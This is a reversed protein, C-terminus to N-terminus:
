AAGKRRTMGYSSSVYGRAAFCFAQISVFLVLLVLTVCAVIERSWGLVQGNSFLLKRVRVKWCRSHHRNLGDIVRDLGAVRTLRVSRTMGNWLEAVEGDSKLRNVIVGSERLLRADEDTDIIGNMLEVYRALVLASRTVCVISAEYAVMNRVLAETNPNIRIVPLHLTASKPCFKISSIGGNSPTFKVGSYALETVCPVAIEELLPSSSSSMSKPQEQQEQPTQQSQSNNLQQIPQVILSLCPITSVLKLLIRVSFDISIFLFKIGRKIFMDTVVSILNKRKGQHSEDDIVDVQEETGDDDQAYCPAMMNSYLFDLLHAHQTMDMTCPSSTDVLTSIEQFFECLMSSLAAHATAPSPNWMEMAKLLLFLPIQNELMVIDNLVMSQRHFSTSSTTRRHSPHDTVLHATRSPIMQQCNNNNSFTQLFELLFSVDIAMMWALADNSLGIHRHYQARIQYELTTFAAVLHQFNMGLLLQSQARRASSLKCMEMEHLEKRCHHYPGLAVLQPTYAEPKTCSLLKPVDFISIPHNDHVEIEEAGLIRRIHIIWQAEDFCGRAALCFAQISLFLVLLVLTVCAVIERLGGLVQGKSFLLKRVGVKWCRADEDTDIIGNMLEVYRALVLASRTGCVISAEYAVMNRLLAETNPNIRIVRLHLTASKPCLEILSVGGNSPTFKVGHDGRASTIIVIVHEQTTTTTTRTTNASNNLQQIPQGILSLCPITSVLKLLIRVSFDILISLFKIGRKIFMNTVVSIPNTRKGQHSEDDIVNVQEETGDYDQAYCPAMMNSYLFDLLHAHQTMDTTCSSSTDVLTSMKQFFECLMYSLASHTMAYSPNRKGHLPIQNELMVIDNLVMSQRHSSSFTTRRRSPHDTVLHSMRSLIMQHCNNSHSFTQLFELLFSMDIAMMWALADSSLGIYLTTSAVRGRWRSIKSHPYEGVGAM